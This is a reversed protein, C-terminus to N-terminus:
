PVLTFNPKHVNRSSEFRCVFKSKISKHNGEEYCIVCIAVYYCLKLTDLKAEAPVKKNQENHFVHYWQSTTIEM